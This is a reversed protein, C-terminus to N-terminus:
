SGMRAASEELTQLTASYMRALGDRVGNPSSVLELSSSNLLAVALAHAWRCGEVLSLFLLIFVRGGTGPPDRQPANM